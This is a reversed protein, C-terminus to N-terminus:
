AAAALSEIKKWEAPACADCVTSTEVVLAGAWPWVEIGLVSGCGPLVVGVCRRVALSGGTRHAELILETRAPCTPTPSPHHCLSCPAAAFRPQRPM